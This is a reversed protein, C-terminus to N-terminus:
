GPGCPIRGPLPGRDHVLRELSGRSCYPMVILPLGTETVDVQLIDVINPHGSLRGMAQEERLFRERSEVDIESSLVKVAVVRDLAPQLARYVVGFGGRGIEKAGTLGMADLEAIVAEDPVGPAMTRQTNLGVPAAEAPGRQMRTQEPDM